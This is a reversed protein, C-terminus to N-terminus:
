NKFYTAQWTGSFLKQLDHNTLWGHEKLSLCVKDATEKDSFKIQLAEKTSLEELALKSYLFTNPCPVNRLDLRRLQKFGCSLPCDAAPSLRSRSVGFDEASFRILESSTEQALARLAFDGQLAGILGAVPGFIGSQICSTNMQTLESEPISGFLCRLCADGPNVHLLLGSYGVAGGYCYPINEAVCFDNVLFKNVASDTAEIVYDMEALKLEINEATISKTHSFFSINKKAVQSNLKEALVESKMQGLNKEAFLVQRNLNSIEIPEPDFIHVKLAQEESAGQSIAWAAPTGLGGAGIIAIQKVYANM